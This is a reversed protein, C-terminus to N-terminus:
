NWLLILLSRKGKLPSLPLLSDNGQSTEDLTENDNQGNDGSILFFILMVTALLKSACLFPIYKLLSVTM